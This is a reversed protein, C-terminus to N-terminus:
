ARFRILVEVISKWHGRRMSVAKPIAYACGDTSTTDRSGLPPEFVKPSIVMKFMVLNRAGPLNNM